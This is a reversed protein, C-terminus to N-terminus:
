LLKLLKELASATINKGLNKLVFNWNYNLHESPNKSYIDETARLKTDVLNM